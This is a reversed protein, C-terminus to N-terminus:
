AWTKARFDYNSFLEQVEDQVRPGVEKRVSSTMVEGLALSKGVRATIADSQFAQKVLERFAPMQGEITGALLGFKKKMMDRFDPDKLLADLLKQVAPDLEKFGESSVPQGSLRGAVAAM